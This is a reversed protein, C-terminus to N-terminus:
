GSDQLVSQQELCVCSGPVSWPLRMYWVCMRMEAGRARRKKQKEGAAALRLTTEVGGSISESGCVGGQRVLARTGGSAESQVGSRRRGRGRGRIAEERRRVRGAADAGWPEQPMVKERVGATQLCASGAKQLHSRMTGSCERQLGAKGQRNGNRRGIWWGAM